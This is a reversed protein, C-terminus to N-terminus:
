RSDFYRSVLADYRPDWRTRHTVSAASAQSARPAEGAARLTEQPSSPSPAGSGKAGPADPGDTLASMADRLQKAAEDGPGLEGLRERVRENAERRLEELQNSTLGDSAALRALTRLSVQLERSGDSNASSEIAAAAKELRAVVGASSVAAAESARGGSSDDGTSAAVWSLGLSALSLLVRRWPLEGWRTEVTEVCAELQRAIVEALGDSLPETLTACRDEAGALRDLERSLNLDNGALWYSTLWGIVILASVVVATPGLPPDGLWCWLAWAFLVFPAFRCTQRTAEKVHLQRLLHRAKPGLSRRLTRIRASM